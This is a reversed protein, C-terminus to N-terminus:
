VEKIELEVLPEDTYKNPERFHVSSEDGSAKDISLQQRIKQYMEYILRFDSDVENSSISNSSHVGYCNFIKQKIIEIANHLDEDCHIMESKDKFTDYQNFPLDGIVNELQGIGFRFYTEMALMLINIQKETLKLCYQKSLIIGKIILQLM